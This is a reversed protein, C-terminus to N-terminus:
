MVVDNTSVPTDASLIRSSKASAKRGQLGLNPTIFLSAFSFIEISTYLLFLPSAMRAWLNILALEREASNEVTPGLGKLCDVRDLTQM